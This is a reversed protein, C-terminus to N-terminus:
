CPEAIYMQKYNTLQVPNYGLSRVFTLLEDRSKEFWKDPWVEFLIKPKCRKITEIAGKLVNIEYGEVDIKIFSVNDLQFDDLCKMEVKETELIQHGPGKVAGNDFTSGGGDPSVIMLEMSKGSEEKNTLGINYAYVNKANSLAIGGCLQYYTSRQAEFAYVKKAYPALNICYTGMHAGIDVFIKDKDVFQKSWEILSKEFIGHKLIHNSTDNPGNLIFTPFKHRAYNDVDNFTYM